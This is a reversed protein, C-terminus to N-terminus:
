GLRDRFLRLLNGGLVAAAERDSFGRRDLADRLVPLDATRGLGPIRAKLDADDFLVFRDYAPYLEDVWDGIFDSGVGVHEIGAVEAMHALHDVVRDVTPRERDVFPAFLIACAVGGSEAIARLHGDSLNRHHDYVARAGSHSAVVPGSVLELAHDICAPALHSLDLVIGREQLRRVVAVGVASLRGGAGEDVTGDALDNRGWHTLSAIRVGMSAFLDVLWVDRGVYAMGELALVVGLGDREVDQGTTVLRDGAAARVLVLQHMVSRLAAEPPSPSAYLPLVQLALGAAEAQAVWGDFYAPDGQPGLEEQRVLMLVPTDNHCDVIGPV